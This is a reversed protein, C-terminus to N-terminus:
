EYWRKIEFIDRKGAIDEKLGLYTIILNGLRLTHLKEKAMYDLIKEIDM